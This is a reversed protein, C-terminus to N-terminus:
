FRTAVSIVTVGHLTLILLPMSLSYSSLLFSSRICVCVPGVNVAFACVIQFFKQTLQARKFTRANRQLKRPKALEDKDNLTAILYLYTHLM